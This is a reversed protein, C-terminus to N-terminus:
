SIELGVVATLPMRVNLDSAHQGELALVCCKQPAESSSSWIVTTTLRGFRVELFHKPEVRHLNGHGILIPRCRFCQLVFPIGPVEKASSCRLDSFKRGLLAFDITARTARSLGLWHSPEDPKRTLNGRVRKRRTKRPIRLAVYRRM